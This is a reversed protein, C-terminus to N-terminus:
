IASAVDETTRVMYNWFILSYLTGIFEFVIMPTYLDKGPKVNYDISNMRADFPEIGFFFKQFVSGELNLHSNVKILLAHFWPIRAQDLVAIKFFSNMKTNFLSIPHDIERGGIKWLGKM